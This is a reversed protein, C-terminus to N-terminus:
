SEEYSDYSADHMPKMFTGKMGPLELESDLYNNMDTEVVRNDTSEDGALATLGGEEQSVRLQKQNDYAEPSQQKKREKRTQDAM